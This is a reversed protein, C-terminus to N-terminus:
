YVGGACYRANYPPIEPESVLFILARSHSPEVRLLWPWSWGLSVYPLSVLMRQVALSPGSPQKNTVPWMGLKKEENIVLVTAFGSFGLCPRPHTAWM